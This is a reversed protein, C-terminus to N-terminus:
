DNDLVKKMLLNSKGRNCDFCLTQLNEETTEGGKDWPFIHDVELTIEPNKAPSAGCICCKFNDRSLVLFRLRLNIERPTKHKIEMKEKIIIPSYIEDEIENSDGNIYEDFAILTSTWSGFKRCFTNLSYKSIGKRIDTSNPQRGLVTWIRLVEELCEKKTIVIKDDIIPLGCFKLANNWSGFHRVIVNSTYNGYTKYVSLSLPNYKQSLSMIDKIVDEKEINNRQGPMIELEASSLAKIWSGFKRIITSSHYKGYLNYETTTLTNKNYKKAVNKIDAIIDEKSINRANIKVEYKM